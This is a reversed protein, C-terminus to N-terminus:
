EKGMESDLAARLDDPDMEIVIDHPTSPVTLYLMGNREDRSIYVDQGDTRITAMM